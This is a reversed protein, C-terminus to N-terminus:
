VEVVASDLAFIQYWYFANLGRPPKPLSDTRLRHHQQQQSKTLTVGMTPTQLLKISQQANSQIWELKCDDQHPLSLRNSQKTQRGSTGLHNHQEEERHWTDKQTKHNHYKRIISM